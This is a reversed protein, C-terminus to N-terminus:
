AGSADKGKKVAEDAAGCVVDVLRDIIQVDGLTADDSLAAHRVRDWTSRLYKAPDANIEILAALFKRLQKMSALYCTM